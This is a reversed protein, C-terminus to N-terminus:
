RYHVLPNVPVHELKSMKPLFADPYLIPRIFVSSHIM